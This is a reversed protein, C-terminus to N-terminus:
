LRRCGVAQHCTSTKVDCATALTGSSSSWGTGRSNEKLYHRYDPIDFVFCGSSCLTLRSSGKEFTHNNFWFVIVWTMFTCKNYSLCTELTMDTNQELSPPAVLSVSLGSQAFPCSTFIVLSESGAKSSTVDKEAGYKRGSEWQREWQTHNWCISQCMRIHCYWCPGCLSFTHFYVCHM